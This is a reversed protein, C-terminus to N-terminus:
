DDEFLSKKISMSRSWSERKYKEYIEPLNEKIAATDLSPRPVPKYTLYGSLGSCNGVSVKLKALLVDEELKLYKARTRIELIKYILDIEKKSAIREADPSKLKDISEVVSKEPKESMKKYFIDYADQVEELTVEFFENHVRKDLFQGHLYTELDRNHYEFYKILRIYPNGTRLQDERRKGAEQPTELVGKEIRRKTWGIKKHSRDGDGMVYVIGVM